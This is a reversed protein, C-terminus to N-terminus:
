FAYMPVPETKVVSAKYIDDVMKRAPLFCHLSDAIKQAGMPTLDVRAWDDDSGISLYDPSVYYTAQIINGTLSDTISTKVAVFKKLFSPVNGSLIEKVAFSDRQQWAMAAATKYFVSGTITPPAAVPFSINKYHSCAATVLFVFLLSAARWM